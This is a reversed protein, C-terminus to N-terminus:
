LDLLEFRSGINQYEAEKEVIRQFEAKKEVIRQFEQKSIEVRDYVVREEYKYFFERGDSIKHYVTRGKEDYKWCETGGHSEYYHYIENGNKSM